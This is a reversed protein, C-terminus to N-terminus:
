FHWGHPSLWPVDKAFTGRIEGRDNVWVLSLSLETADVLISKQRRIREAEKQEM